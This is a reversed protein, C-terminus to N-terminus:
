FASPSGRECTGDGRELQSCRGKAQGDLARAGRCADAWTQQSAPCRQPHANWRCRCRHRRKPNGRRRRNSAQPLGVPILEGKLSRRRCERDARDGATIGSGDDGFCEDAAAHSRAVRWSEPTIAMSVADRSTKSRGLCVERARIEPGLRGGGIPVLPHRGRQQFLRGGV